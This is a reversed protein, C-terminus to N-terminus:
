RRGTRVTLVPCQAHRVVREAVSGFVLRELKGEGHTAIVILDAADDRAAKVIEHGADGHGVVTTTRVGQSALDRALSDLKRQAEVHLAREYEPVSWVFTSDSPAVPVIPLVHILRIESKFHLALERAVAIAESSPDSFDTPCLIRAIPLM